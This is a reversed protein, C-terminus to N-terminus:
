EGPWILGELALRRARQCLVPNAHGLPAGQAHQVVCVPCINQFVCNDCEIPIPYESVGANVIKWAELFSCQTLDAQVESLMVCPQLKATWSVAFSSRGGGCRMGKKGFQGSKSTQPVEEQCISKLERGSLQAQMKYLRIYEDLSYDHNETHRGTECRPTFLRANMSYPLGFSSIFRLLDEANNGLYKSPTIGITVTIGSEKTRLIAAAVQSFVGTGTVEKYVDDNNGYISIQISSPRHQKFFEIRKETLLLGNTNVGVAIGRSLLFLFIEDFDPHTLAEGGTLIAHIMGADIAQDMISIWEKGSLLKRGSANVQQESLHSYCMKCDLNCLPTLEFTGKLPVGQQRAKMDLYKNMGIEIDVRSAEQNELRCLYEYLGGTKQHNVERVEQAM